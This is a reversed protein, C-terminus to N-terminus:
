TDDSWVVRWTHAKTDDSIVESLPLSAQAGPLVRVLAVPELPGSSNELNGQGDATTRNFLTELGSLRYGDGRYARNPQQVSQGIAWAMTLPHPFPKRAIFPPPCSVVVVEHNTCACEPHPEDVGQNLMGVGLDDDDIPPVALRGSAQNKGKQVAAGAM